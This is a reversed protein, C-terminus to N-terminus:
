ACVGARATRRGGLICGLGRSFRPRRFVASICSTGSARLGGSRRPTMWFGSSSRAERRRERTNDNKWVSERARGARVDAHAVGGNRAPHGRGWALRGSRRPWRDTMWDYSPSVQSHDPMSNGFWRAKSIGTERISDERQRSSGVIIFDAWGCVVESEVRALSVFFLGFIGVGGCMGSFRARFAVSIRPSSPASHIFRIGRRMVPRSFRHDSSTPFGNGFREYM